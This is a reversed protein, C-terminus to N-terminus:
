EAEFSSFFQVHTRNRYKFIVNNRGELMLIINEIINEAPLSKVPSATRRSINNYLMSKLQSELWGHSRRSSRLLEEDITYFFVQYMPRYMSSTLHIYEHAPIHPHIVKIEWSKKKTNLILSPSEVGIMKSSIFM